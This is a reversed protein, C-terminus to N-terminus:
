IRANGKLLCRWRGKLCGFANETVFRARSLQYNFTTQRATLRGCDSYPKMMWPLLPYAPDGLLLLPVDKGCIRRQKDPFLTGAEGKEFVDSNALVCADHTSGPWGIYIDMFCYQHDVVAQM